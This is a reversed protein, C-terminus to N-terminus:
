PEGPRRGLDGSQVHDLVDLWEVPLHRLNVLLQPLEAMLELCVARGGTTPTADARARAPRGSRRSVVM